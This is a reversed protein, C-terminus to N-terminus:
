YSDRLRILAARAKQAYASQPGSGIVERYIQSARETSGLGELAQAETLKARLSDPSTPYKLYFNRVPQFVNNYNKLNLWAEAILLLGQGNDSYNPFRNQLETLTVIAEGHQGRQVKQEAEALMAAPTHAAAASAAAQSSNPEDGEDFGVRGTGESPSLLKEGSNNDGHSHSFAPVDVVTQSKSESQSNTKKGSTTENNQESDADDYFLGSRNARNLVQLNRKATRLQERLSQLEMQNAALSQKNKENDAVLTDITKKLNGEDSESVHTKSDTSEDSKDGFPWLSQLTACGNLIAAAPLLISFARAVPHKM